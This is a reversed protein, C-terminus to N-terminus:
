SVNLLCVPMYVFLKIEMPRCSYVTDNVLAYRSRQTILSAAKGRKGSCFSVNFAPGLGDALDFRMQHGFVSITGTGTRDSKATGHDLIHRLLDLYTKM